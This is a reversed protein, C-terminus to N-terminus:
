LDARDPHLQDNAAVGPFRDGPLAPLEADGVIGDDRQVRRRGSAAVAARGPDGDRHDHGGDRLEDVSDFAFRRVGAEHAARIHEAMKVPNSFIIEDAPVGIALLSQLEALGAIEFSGGAAKVRALLQPDPNCKMAYHIGVNPLLARFQGIKAAVADLDMVLFPTSHTATMAATLLRNEVAATTVASSM